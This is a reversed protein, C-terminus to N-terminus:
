PPPLRTLVAYSEILAHTALLLGSGRDLEGEVLATVAAHREHWGSVLAIIVSTDLAVLDRPKESAARGRSRAVTSEVSAAYGNRRGRSPASTSRPSRRLRCRWRSAGPESWGCRRPRRSSSSRM